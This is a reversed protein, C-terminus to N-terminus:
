DNVDDLERRLIAEYPDPEAVERTSPASVPLSTGGLPAQSSADAASSPTTGSPESPMALERQRREGKSGRLKARVKREGDASPGGRVSAGDSSGAARAQTSIVPEFAGPTAERGTGSLAIQRRVFWLVAMLTAGLGLWVWWSGAGPTGSLDVGPIREALLRRVEATDKGERLWRRADDRWRAADPSPCDALTRGPCFPSMTTGAIKQAEQEVRQERGEDLPVPTAGKPLPRSPAEGAGAGPALSAGSAGEATAQASLLLPTVAVM